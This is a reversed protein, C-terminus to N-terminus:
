EKEVNSKCETKKDIIEKSKRKHRSEEIQFETAMLFDKKKQEKFSLL